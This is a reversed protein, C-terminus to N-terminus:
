YKTSKLKRHKASRPASVTNKALTNHRPPIFWSEPNSTGSGVSWYSWCFPWGGQLWHATHQYPSTLQCPSTLQSLCSMQLSNQQSRNYGHTPGIVGMLDSFMTQLLNTGIRIQSTAVSTVVDTVM